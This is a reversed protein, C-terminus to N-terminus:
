VQPELLKNFDPKLYFMIGDVAGPLTVGRILLSLLIVYPFIATFYAVQYYFLCSLSFLVFSRRKHLSELESVAKDTIVKGAALRRATVVNM